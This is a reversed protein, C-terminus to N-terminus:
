LSRFLDYGKTDAIGPHGYTIERGDREEPVYHGPLFYGPPLYVRKRWLIYFEIYEISEYLSNLFCSVILKKIYGWKTGISM